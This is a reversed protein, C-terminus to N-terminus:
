NKKDINRKFIPIFGFLYYELYNKYEKIKLVLINGGFIQTKNIHREKDNLTLNNDDFFKVLEKKANYFDEQKKQSPKSKVISNSNRRYHYMTNPTTVLKESKALIYPMWVMDEFYVGNRFMNNKILNAKYLKNWVYCSNPINCIKIKENLETYTEEETYKVRYKVEGRLITAAAIDSNTSIISNYLKEYFDLDVWDDSDVFGIYEGIAASIGTNRAASLGQNEQTIIKIQPYKKLIELSNDTSGDNVCIIEMDKFTQNVLSNLCDELYASTNYVPVIVSIKM